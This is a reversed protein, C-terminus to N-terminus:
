GRRLIDLTQPRTHNFTLEYAKNIAISTKQLAEEQKNARQNQKWNSKSRDTRCNGSWKILAIKQFLFKSRAWDLGVCAFPM